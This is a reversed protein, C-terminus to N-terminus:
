LLPTPVTDSGLPLIRSKLLREELDRRKTSGKLYKEIMLSAVPAAWVGGFGANEVLVAVAIRPNERPAFCVFVAHDKGHPNQATGT